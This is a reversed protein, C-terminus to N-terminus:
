FYIHLVLLHKTQIEFSIQIRGFLSVYGLLDFVSYNMAETFFSSISLYHNCFLFVHMTRIFDDRKLLRELVYLGRAM